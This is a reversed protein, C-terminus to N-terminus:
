YPKAKKDTKIIEFLVVASILSIITWSIFMPSYGHAKIIMGYIWSSIGAGGYTSFDMLGSVSSINGTDTFRMPYISLM